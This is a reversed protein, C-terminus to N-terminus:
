LRIPSCVLPTIFASIERARESLPVQWYGKLLDFKSVFQASSVQDVCDEMRPLLYADPKTVGNVKRYDTRVEPVSLFSLGGVAAAVSVAEGIRTREEGKSTYVQRTYYPKLLNVHCLQTSKRCGPTSLLDNQDSLQHLVTFPGTFKAQFPSSVVPLLALVQDGPSFQRQESKRDYLRKKEQSSTLKERAMEGGAYLRHHFGNVYDVLNSPPESLGVSDHLLKLPGLMTHGFVLENPSFGTSDQVVERAALLPWPLGDEWDQNLEVCYGCLLSKLTQHFRELAM